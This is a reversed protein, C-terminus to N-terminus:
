MAITEQYSPYDNSSAATYIGDNVYYSEGDYLCNNIMVQYTYGDSEGIVCVFMGAVLADHIEQWTKNLTHTNEEITESIIMGGGGAVGQELVNLEATVTEGTQWTHPTYSM